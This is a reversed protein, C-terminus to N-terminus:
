KVGKKTLFHARAIVFVSGLVYLASAWQYVQEGTPGFAVVGLGSRQEPALLFLVALIPLAWVAYKKWAPYANPMVWLLGFVLALAGMGYMLPEGISEFFRHCSTDFINQTKDYFCIGLQYTNSFIYGFVALLSSSLLFFRPTYNKM